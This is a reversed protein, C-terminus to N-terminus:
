PTSLDSLKYVTCEVESWFWESDVCVEVHTDNGLMNAETRPAGIIAVFSGVIFVVLAIAIWYGPERYWPVM